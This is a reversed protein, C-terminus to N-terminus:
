AGEILCLVTGVPVDATGEPVLIRGIVGDEPAEITNAIKDTEVEVLPDGKQVTEGEAKYWHSLTGSEMMLGWKPMSLETTM